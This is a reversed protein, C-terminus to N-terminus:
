ARELRRLSGWLGRIGFRASLGAVREVLSWETDAYMSANIEPLNFPMEGGDYVHALPEIVQMVRLSGSMVLALEEAAGLAAAGDRTPRHGCGVLPHAPTAHGRDPLKASSKMRSSDGDARGSRVPPSVWTNSTV